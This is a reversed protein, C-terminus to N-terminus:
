NNKLDEINKNMRNLLKIIVFNQEILDQAFSFKKMKFIQILDEVDEDDLGALECRDIFKELDGQQEVQTKKDAFVAM